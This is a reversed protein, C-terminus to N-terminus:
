YAFGGVDIKLLDENISPAYESHSNVMCINLSHLGENKLM